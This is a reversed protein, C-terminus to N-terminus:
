ATSSSSCPTSQTSGISHAASSNESAPQSKQIQQTGATEGLCLAPSPTSLFPPPSVSIYIVSLCPYALGHFIKQTFSYIASRYAAPVDNNRQVSVNLFFFSLKVYVKYKLEFLFGKNQACGQTSNYMKLCLYFGSDWRYKPKPASASVLVLVINKYVDTCQHLSWQSNVICLFVCNYWIFWDIIDASQCMPRARILVIKNETCLVQCIYLTIIRSKTKGMKLDYDAVSECLALVRFFNVESLASVVVWM